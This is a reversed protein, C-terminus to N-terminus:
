EGQKRLKWEEPNENDGLLVVAIGEKMGLHTKDGNAYIILDEVNGDDALVYREIKSVAQIIECRPLGDRLDYFKVNM